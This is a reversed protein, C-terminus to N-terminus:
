KLKKSSTEEKIMQMPNLVSINICSIPYEFTSIHAEYDKMKMEEISTFDDEIITATGAGSSTEIGGRVSEGRTKITKGKNHDISIEVVEQKKTRQWRNEELSSDYECGYSEDSINTICVNNEFDTTLAIKHTSYDELGNFHGSCATFISDQIFCNYTELNGYIGAEKLFLIVGEVNLSNDNKMLNM